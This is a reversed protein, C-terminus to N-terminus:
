VENKKIIHGGNTHLYDMLPISHSQLLKWSVEVTALCNLKCMVLSYLSYHIQVSIVSVANWGCGLDLDQLITLFLDLQPPHAPPPPPSFYSTNYSCSFHSYFLILLVSFLPLLLLLSILLLLLLLLLMLLLLLPKLLLLFLPYCSPPCSWCLVNHEQIFVSPLALSFGQGVSEILWSPTQLVAGAVGPRNFITTKIAKNLIFMTM